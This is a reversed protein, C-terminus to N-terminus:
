CYFQCTQDTDTDDNVELVSGTIENPRFITCGKLGAEYAQTYIDNLKEFPFDRPLNITKSIANDVYPQMAAQVQLHAEPTLANTDVWAPPLSSSRQNDWLKHAYDNVRFTQRSGDAILIHRSYSASFIPEIGNSINNALLSITGAPAITNHHSNRVGFKELESQINAPLEEIFKGHLYKSEFFPFKGKEKALEISTQWTIDAVKKMIDASLKISAQSGYRLNLMVFLDALGTVGLGIRRTGLAQERQKKLPYRSVDIVNDQFRTAISVTEELAQWNINANETFPLRVFKTLNIAGLNCAGYSPLPIEGCPNTANIQERYWLNNGQNITDGFLVGPEAYNYASQLISEWLHRATIYRHIRCAVPEPCNGWQRYIVESDIDDTPFVLPWDDNQRVAQMFADSVMVSVNFHRLEHPDKKAAIFEEIDPHDCRLVGMMAGRRAGTSLLVACTADWIRMFSVPGSATLGTNKALAGRPRLISFDYGVGGGQQLTLAGEQLANFIGLMSDEAIDMVFCNFLTVSHSTGAGALIRGGPLFKFDELTQYFSKEWSPQLSSSEARAVAKAVRQWTDEITHDVLQNNQRYRYKMDWIYESIPMIFKSM